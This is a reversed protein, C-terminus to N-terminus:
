RRRLDFYDINNREENIIGPLIEGYDFQIPELQFDVRKAEQHHNNM